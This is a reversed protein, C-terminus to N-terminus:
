FLMGKLIAAVTAGTRIANASFTREVRTRLGGHGAHPTEFQQKQLKVESGGNRGGCIGATICCSCLKSQRIKTSLKM